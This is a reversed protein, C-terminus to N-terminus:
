VFVISQETLPISLSDRPYGTIAALLKILLYGM